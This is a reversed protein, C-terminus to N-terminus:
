MQASQVCPCLLYFRTTFIFCYVVFWGIGWVCLPRGELNTKREEGEGQEEQCKYMVPSGCYIYIGHGPNVGYIRGSSLQLLIPAFVGVAWVPIPQGDVRSSWKLMGNGTPCGKSPCPLWAAWMIILSLPLLFASVFSVFVHYVLPLLTSM